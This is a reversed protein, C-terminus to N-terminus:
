RFVTQAGYRRFRDAAFHTSLSPEVASKERECQVQVAQTQHAHLVQAFMMV